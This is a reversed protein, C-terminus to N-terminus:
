KLKSIYDLSGKGLRKTYFDFYAISITKLYALRGDPMHWIRKVSEYAVKFSLLYYDVTSLYTRYFRLKNRTRLYIKINSTSSKGVKHLIVSSPLFATYFGARKARVCYDMEECYAFYEADLLGIKEIVERKIIMSSGPVYECFVPDSQNRDFDRISTRRDKRNLINIYGAQWLVSPNDFYYNVMGGIGIDKNKEMMDIVSFFTDDIFETDNNILAIYDCGDELAMRIGVNNGEAFGLNQPNKRYSVPLDFHSIQKESLPMDSHNDLLYIKLIDRRDLFKKISELCCLTVLAQNLNLIVIGIKLESKNM